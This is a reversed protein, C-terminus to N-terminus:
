RQGPMRVRRVRQPGVFTARPFCSTDWEALENVKGAHEDFNFLWRDKGGNLVDLFGATTM